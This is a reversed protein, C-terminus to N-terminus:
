IRRSLVGKPRTQSIPLCRMQFKSALLLNAISDNIKITRCCFQRNFEITGSVSAMEGLCCIQILFDLQVFFADSNQAKAVIGNHRVKVAHQVLDDM